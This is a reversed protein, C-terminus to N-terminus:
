YNQTSIYKQYLSNYIADRKSEDLKIREKYDDRSEDSRKEEFLGQKETTANLDEAMKTDVLIYPMFKWVLVKEGKGGSAIYKGNASIDVAMVADNHMAFTYLENGTFTEWVRVTNDFGATAFLYGDPAFALDMVARDHGIFARVSRDQGVHWLRITKDGSVSVFHANDPHFKIAYINEAHGELSNVMQGTELNWVKITEDLSGSALWKGNASIAVAPVSKEHGELTYMEEGSVFEWVKVKKYYTGASLYKSNASLSFNIIHTNTSPYTHLDGGNPGVLKLANGSTYLINNEAVLQLDKVPYYLGTIAHKEEIVPITHIYIANDEGGSALATGEPNFSLSNVPAKHSKIEGLIYDEDDQTYVDKLCFFCIAATLVFVLRKYCM